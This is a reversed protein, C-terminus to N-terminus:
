KGTGDARTGVWSARSTAAVAILQAHRCLLPLPPLLPPLPLPSPLAAAPRPKSAAAPVATSLHAQLAALMDVTKGSAKLGHKKSLTQLEKRSLTTLDGSASAKPAAAKSKSKSKKPAAAAPAGGGLKAELAALMDVTKGNAKVGHKKALAQLEKRSLTTLAM